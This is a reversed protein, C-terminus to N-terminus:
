HMLLPLSTSIELNSGVYKPYMTDHYIRVLRRITNQSGFKSEDLVNMKRYKAIPVHEVVTPFKATTNKSIKRGRKRLPRTITCEVGYDACTLCSTHLLNEPDDPILNKEAKRCKLGRSHCFDCAWTARQRGKSATSQM